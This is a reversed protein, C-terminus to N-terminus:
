VESTTTLQRQRLVLGAATLLVVAYALLILVYQWSPGSGVFTRRFSEPMALDEPMWRLLLTRLYYQVTFENVMAPVMGVIFEFFFTYGVAVIMARRLFLVGLMVYLAGYALCSLVVLPAFTQWAAWLGTHPRILVLSITLSLLAPLVAWVVAALYKGLVVPFKGGPRVALYTWTRGEVESQIAPTAWLLMSLLCQVGPVLIFITPLWAPGQELRAGQWQIVWILAVPFGALVATTALRAVSLARRCEFTLVVWASQLGTVTKNVLSEFM